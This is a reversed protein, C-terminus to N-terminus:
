EVEGREKEAEGLGQPLSRLWFGEKEGEGEEILAKWLALDL